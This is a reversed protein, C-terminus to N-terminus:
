RTFLSLVSEMDIKNPQITTVNVKKIPVKEIKMTAVDPCKINMQMNSIKDMPLMKVRIDPSKIDVKKNEIKEIEPIAVEIKPCNVNIHMAEVKPTDTGDFATIEAKPICLNEVRCIYNEKQIVPVPDPQIINVANTKVEMASVKFDSIVPAKIEVHEMSSVQYIENDEFAVDMVDPMKIEPRGIGAVIYTDKEDIKINSIVPAEIELKELESIEFKEGAKYNIDPTPMKNIDIKSIQYADEATYEVDPVVFEVKETKCNFPESNFKYHDAFFAAEQNVKVDGLKAVHKDLKTRATIKSNPINVKGPEIPITNENIKLNSLRFVEEDSKIKRKIKRQDFHIKQSDSKKFTVETPTIRKLKVRKSSHCKKEIRGYQELKEVFRCREKYLDYEELYIEKQKEDLLDIEEITLIKFTM